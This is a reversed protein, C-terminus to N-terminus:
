ILWWISKGVREARATMVAGFVRRARALRQESAAGRPDYTLYQSSSPIRGCEDGAIGQAAGWVRLAYATACTDIEALLKEVDIEIFEGQQSLDRIRGALWETISVQIGEGLLCLRYSHENDHVSCKGSQM